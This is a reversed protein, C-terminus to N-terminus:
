VPKFIARIMFDKHFFQAQNQGESYGHRAATWNPFNRSIFLKEFRKCGFICFSIKMPM